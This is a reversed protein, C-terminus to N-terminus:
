GRGDSADSCPRDFEVMSSEFKSADAIGPLIGDRLCPRRAGPRDPVLDLYILMTQISSHGLWRSLFNIPIGSVLLHRAYSHGLTHNSIHRGATFALLDRSRAYVVSRPRWNRCM